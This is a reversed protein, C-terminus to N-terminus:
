ESKKDSTEVEAEIRPEREVSVVKVGGVTAKGELAKLSSWSINPAREGDFRAALEKISEAEVTSDDSLTASYTWRAGAGPRTVSRKFPNGLAEPSDLDVESQHIIAALIHPQEKMSDVFDKWQQPNWYTANLLRQRAEAAEEKVSTGKRAVEALEKMQKVVEGLEALDTVKGSTIRSTLERLQKRAEKVDDPLASAGGESKAKAVLALYQQIPTLKEVAQSDQEVM